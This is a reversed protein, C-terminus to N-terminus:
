VRTRLAMDYALQDAARRRFRMLLAEGRLYQARSQEGLREYVNALVEATEASSPDAHLAGELALKRRPM